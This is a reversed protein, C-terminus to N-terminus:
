ILSAQIVPRPFTCSTAWWHTDRKSSYSAELDDPSAMRVASPPQEDRTHWHLAELGPVTCRDYQELCIQRLAELAPLRRLGLPSDTALVWELHQFGDAGIQRALTERTSAEKPLRAQDSRLGCRPYWEPPVQQQVWTPEVDSLQNLAWHM